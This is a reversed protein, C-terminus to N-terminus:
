ATHEWQKDYMKLEDKDPEAETKTVPLWDPTIDSIQVIMWRNVLIVIIGSFVTLSIFASEVTKHNFDSCWVQYTEHCAKKSNLLENM